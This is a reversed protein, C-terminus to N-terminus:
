MKVHQLQVQLTAAILQVFQHHFLTPQVCCQAYNCVTSPPVTRGCVSACMAGRPSDDTMTRQARSPVYIDTSDSFAGSACASCSHSRAHSHAYIELANRHSSSRDRICM